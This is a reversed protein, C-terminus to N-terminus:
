SEVKLFTVSKIRWHRREENSRQKESRSKSHRKPRSRRPQEYNRTAEIRDGTLRNLAFRHLFTCNFIELRDPTREGRRSKTYIRQDRRHHPLAELPHSASCRRGSKTLWSCHITYSFVHFSVKADRLREWQRYEAKQEEFHRVEAVMGRKKAFNANSAEAAKEQAAKAIEYQPALDLSRTVILM